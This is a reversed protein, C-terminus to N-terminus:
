KDEFYAVKKLYRTYKYYIKFVYKVIQSISPNGVAYLILTFNKFSSNKKLESIRLLMGHYFERIKWTCFFDRVIVSKNIKELSYVSKHM